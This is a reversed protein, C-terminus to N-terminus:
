EELEALKGQAAEAPKWFWGGNDWCQAYYFEDVLRQFAAKAKEVQGDKLYAEGLIFLCTGVDNLAWYSFIEDNSEWPYETLGNQMEVAKAEYLEFVKATYAKVSELDGDLLAKWAKTTMTSSSYDGYDINTGSEIMAIKEAAAEAPKWFWGGMDWCQGYKFENIVRNYAEKAEDMMGAKRYAEGQIYLVTAIDNLAWYSFIEDNTGTPYQDLSAQMKRANNGYMEICKNSYALVGELDNAGLAQWAKSALTSSKYDGFNYAQAASSVLGVAAVVALMGRVFKKM